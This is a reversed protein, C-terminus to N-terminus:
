RAARQAAARGETGAQARASAAHNRAVLAPTEASPAQGHRLRLQGEPLVADAGAVALVAMAISGVVVAGLAVMAFMMASVRWWPLQPHNMHAQRGHHSPSM